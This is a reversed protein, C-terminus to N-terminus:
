NNKFLFFDRRLKQKHFWHMYDQQYKFTSVYLEVLQLYNM